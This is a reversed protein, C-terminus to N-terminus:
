IILERFDTIYDEIYDEINPIIINNHQLNDYLFFVKLNNAKAMKINEISTEFVIIDKYDLTLSNICSKYINENKLSDKDLIKDFFDYVKNNKLCPEYLAKEYTTILATKIKNEKLFILYDLVGSKLMVNESYEKYILKKFEQFIKDFNNEICCHEKIYNHIELFNMNALASEYGVPIHLKKSKLFNKFTQTLINLSDLITNDLNFIVGKYNNM